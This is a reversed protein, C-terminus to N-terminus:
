ERAGLPDFEKVELRTPADDARTASPSMSPHFYPVPPAGGNWTRKGDGSGAGSGAGAGAGTDTGTDAGPGAPAGGAEAIALAASGDVDGPTAASELEDRPAADAGDAGCAAGVPAGLEVTSAVAEDLRAEFSASPVVGAPAVRRSPVWAAAARAVCVRELEPPPAM